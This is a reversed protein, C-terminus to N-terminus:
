EHNYYRDDTKVMNSTKFRKGGRNFFLWLIKQAEGYDIDEEKLSFLVDGVFYYINEEEDTEPFQAQVKSSPWVAISKGRWTSEKKEETINKNEM